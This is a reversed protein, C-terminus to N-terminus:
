SRVKWACNNPNKERCYGTHVFNSYGVASENNGLKRGVLRGWKPSGEQPVQYRRTLHAM